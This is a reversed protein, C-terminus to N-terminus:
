SMNEKLQYSHIGLTIEGFIETGEDGFSRYMEATLRNKLIEFEKIIM